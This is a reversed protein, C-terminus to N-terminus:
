TMLIIDSTTYSVPPALPERGATKALLIDSSASQGERNLNVVYIQYQNGCLLNSIVFTSGNSSTEKSSGSENIVYHKWESNAQLNKFFIKQILGSMMMQPVTPVTTVSSSGGTSSIKPEVRIRISKSTVEEIRLVPHFPIVPPDSSSKVYLSYTMADSGHINRAHCTYNSKDDGLSLSTIRLSGNSLVEMRKDLSVRTNSQSNKSQGNISTSGSSSSSSSAGSSTSLDEHSSTSINSSIGSTVRDDSKTDPYLSLILPPISSSYNRINWEIIAKPVGM